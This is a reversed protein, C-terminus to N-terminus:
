GSNRSQWQALAPVLRRLEENLSSLLQEADAFNGARCANETDAAIDIAANAEFNSCLGKLSHAIRGSEAADGVSILDRLQLLLGPSDEQFYDIMSCLLEKDDGMRRLAVDPNWPYDRSPNATISDNTSASSEASNMKAQRFRWRGSKTLLSRMMAQNPHQSMGLQEVTRLLLQADLPKSLYGDMGAALCSERDGRLAHATMAVIPTHKASPMEIRRIAQTAQLGDLIPMQVDMLVVDFQGREFLDIAERGNHAVTVQHGRKKLLTKVVKQNAPIDEAVLINLSDSTPEIAQQLPRVVAVDGIAESISNLLSSQSVPKELFAGVRLGAIRKRFLHQDAPSIMLISAGATETAHEIRELLDIGDKQPMLADVILLAFGDGATSALQMRCLASDVSDATDARMGWADVMEKLIRRTTENDDVILVRTGELQKPKLTAASLRDESAAMVGFEATFHFKSGQGPSSEVWLRGQMLDALERCISLGLGSGTYCRTMSTDAKAFPAFIREQDKPDIGIGTDSICFHLPVRDGASWESREDASSRLPKVTVVVEGSETFKIANGALNTIVQRLRIPDGMLRFPVDADVTAALELGKEHARLSLGRMTEDLMRRIDFSIQDLEFRDVELRSFDLIDNILSLMTDASDKATLLYDRVVDSVEEHLALETMGLIANMPTRLEHTINALFERKVKNARATAVTSEVADPNQTMESLQFPSVADSETVQQDFPARIFGIASLKGHIVFTRYWLLVSIRVGQRNMLKVRYRAGPPVDGNQALLNLLNKEAQEQDEPPILLDAVKRRVAEDSSWGLLESASHNWATIIGCSDCIVVGDPCSDFVLDAHEM